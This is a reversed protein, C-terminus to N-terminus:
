SAVYLLVEEWTGFKNKVDNWTANTEAVEGWTYYNRIVSLGLHAPVKNRLEREIDEFRYQKDGPPPTVEVHLVSNEVWSNASGGTFTNVITNILASNLKGQGRLRAIIVDRRNEITANSSTGIDLIKEWQAIREENMTHLYANNLVENMEGHIDSLEPSETDVIVQFEKIMSIVQPFYSMMREKYDVEYNM